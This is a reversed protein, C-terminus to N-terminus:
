FEKIICCCIDLTLEMSILCFCKSELQKFLQNIITKNWKFNYLQGKFMSRLRVLASVTNNLFINVVESQKYWLLKYFGIFFAGTFCYYLAIMAM